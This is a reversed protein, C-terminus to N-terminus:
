SCWTLFGSGTTGDGAQASQGAREIGRFVYRSAYDVDVRVVPPEDAWGGAPATLLAVLCFGPLTRLSSMFGSAMSTNTKSGKTWVSIKDHVGGGTEENEGGSEESERPDREPREPRMGQLLREGGPATDCRPLRRHEVVEDMGHGQQGQGRQGM